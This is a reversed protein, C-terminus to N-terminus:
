GLELRKQLRDECRPVFTLSRSFQQVLVARRM